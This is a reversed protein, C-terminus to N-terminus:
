LRSSSPGASEAFDTLETGDSLGASPYLDTTPATSFTSYTGISRSTKTGLPMDTRSGVVNSNFVLESRTTLDDIGGSQLIGDAAKEHLNLMLRLIMMASINRTLASMGTSGTASLAINVAHVCCIVVFYVVGDRIMLNMLPIQIDMKAYTKRTRYSKYVTLCFILSDYTLACSWTIALYTAKEEVFYRDCVIGALLVTGLSSVVVSWVVVPLVLALAGWLTWLIRKSCEYMAYVRMALLIPVILEVVLTYVNIFTEYLNCTDANSPPPSFRLVLVVIEGCTVLYRLAFFWYSSRRKSQNWIYQVELDLTLLHDYLLAVPPAIM